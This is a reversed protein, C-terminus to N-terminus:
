SAHVDHRGSPFCVKLCCLTYEMKEAGARLDSAAFVEEAEQQVQMATWIEM